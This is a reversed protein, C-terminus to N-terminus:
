SLGSPRAITEREVLPCAFISRDPVSRKPQEIEDILASMAARGMEIHPLAITTLPPTLREAFYDEDDFGIVSLEHPVNVGAIAAAQLLGAAVRDRM